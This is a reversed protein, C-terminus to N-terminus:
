KVESVKESGAASLELMEEFLKHIQPYSRKLSLPRGEPIIYSEWRIQKMISYETSM